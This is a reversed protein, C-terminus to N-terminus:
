REQELAGALTTGPRTMRIVLVLGVGAALTGALGGEPGFAGGTIWAPGAATVDYLPVDFGELGSVPLDLPGAMMWNWGLHVATAFWLSGSLVGALFINLIAFPAAGPNAGHVAAFVVSTFVIAATPGAGDALTRFLYGRFLAEEAAAPVALMGLSFAARGLWGALTGPETGYDYLGASAFAGVVIALAAAGAALGWALARPADRDLHFGLSRRPRRDVRHLMVRGVLVAAILVLTSQLVLGLTVRDEVPPLLGIVAAVFLELWIVLIFLAVFLLVRWTTRLRGDEQVLWRTWGEGGL